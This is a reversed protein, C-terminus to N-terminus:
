KESFSPYLGTDRLNNEGNVWGANTVVYAMWEAPIEINLAAWDRVHMPLLNEVIDDHDECGQASNLIHRYAVMLTKCVIPRDQSDKIAEHINKLAGRLFFLNQEM